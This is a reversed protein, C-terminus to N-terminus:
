QDRMYGTLRHISKTASARLPGMQATSVLYKFAQMTQVLFHNLAGNESATKRSLARVHENLRRFLVLMIGGATAAMLAFPWSILLAFGFYVVVTIVATMYRGYREF